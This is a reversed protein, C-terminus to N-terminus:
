KIKIVKHAIALMHKKIAKMIKANFVNDGMPLMPRLAHNKAAKKDKFGIKFDKGSLKVYFSNLLDGKLNLNVPRIKKGYNAYKGRRIQKKYLESYKPFKAGKVPSKGKLIHDDIILTKFLRPLSKKASRVIKKRIRPFDIRLNVKNKAM